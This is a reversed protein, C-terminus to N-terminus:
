RADLAARVATELAELTFPKQLFPVDASLRPHHQRPYGSVRLIRVKPRLERLREVFHPGSMKPMVLDTVVLDVTQSADGVIGLAAVPDAAELVTFGLDRLHEAMMARLSDDDDVVLIGSAKAGHGSV